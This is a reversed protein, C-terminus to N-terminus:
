LSLLDKEKEHFTADIKKIFEQTITEVNDCLKRSEDQSIQKDKETKKVEDISDRRLSRIHVRGQEAYKGAQKVLAKRREQTLDPLILRILTGDVCPSIGLNSTALAKEISKILSRDWVQITLQRPEPVNINGLNVLPTPTGYADVMVHEVLSPSARSARLSLLDKYFDRYAQEMRQRLDAHLKNEM